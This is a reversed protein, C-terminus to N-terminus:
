RFVVHSWNRHFPNNKYSTNWDIRLIPIAKPCFKISIHYFLYTKASPFNHWETMEWGENINTSDSMLYLYSVTGNEHRCWYYISGGRKQLSGRNCPWTWGSHFTYKKNREEWFVLLADQLFIHLINSCTEVKM